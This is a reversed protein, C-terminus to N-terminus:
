WFWTPGQSPLTTCFSFSYISIIKQKEAFLVNMLLWVLVLRIFCKLDKNENCSFFIHVAVFVLCCRSLAPLFNFWLHAIKLFSQTQRCLPSTWHGGEKQATRKLNLFAFPSQPLHSGPTPHLKRPSVDRGTGPISVTSLHLMAIIVGSNLRQFNVKAKCM